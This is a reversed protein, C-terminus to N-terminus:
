VPLALKGLVAPKKAGTVTISHAMGRLFLEGLLAISVAERFNILTEEPIIVEFSLDKLDNLITKNFAGGGVVVLIKVHPVHLRLNKAISEATFRVLTRLLDFIDVKGTNNLAKSLFDENYIERGTTKPPRKEIFTKDQELLIKLLTEYLNGKSSLEGNVDYRVHFHKQCVLDILCNGPGTDFAILDGDKNIVTVNSIGGINLVATKSDKILFLSDFYSSIPAGQGGLVMDKKRFDYIVPKGLEVALVDAEGIQLTAGKEPLHYITQGHYAIFDFDINLEKIMKAHLKALEFNILTIYEVNSLKKDYSDLIKQQVEKDYPVTIAEKIQFVLGDDEQKFVVNAIDLGDASTGSMLGLITHEPKELDNLFKNWNWLKVLKSM